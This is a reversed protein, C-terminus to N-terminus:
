RKRQVIKVMTSIGMMDMTALVFENPEKIVLTPVGSPLSMVFSSFIGAGNFDMRRVNSFDVIVDKGNKMATEIVSQFEGVNGESITEPPEVAGSSNVVTEPDQTTSASSSKMVGDDEWGPASLEFQVAFDIAYDEFQESKGEWQMFELLLLWYPTDELKPEKKSSDVLTKLKEAVVGEGMLTGDVKFKRIQAMLEQLAVVGEKSTQDLKMRSCDIKCTKTERSATLFDKFKAQMQSSVAGDVVLVNRGSASKSKTKRIQETWSPPSCSFRRAFLEAMKEYRIKDGLVQYLDLVMFWIRKDTNGKTENLHSILLAQVQDDAGSAFQMALEDIISSFSEEIVLDGGQKPVSAPPSSKSESMSRLAGGNSGQNGSSIVDKMAPQTLPHQTPPLTSPTEKQPKKFISLM